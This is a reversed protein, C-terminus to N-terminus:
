PDHVAVPAGAGSLERTGCGRPTLRTLVTGVTRVTGGLERDLRNWRSRGACAMPNKSEIGKM